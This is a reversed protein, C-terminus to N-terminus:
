PKSALLGRARALDSLKQKVLQFRKRLRAAEKKRAAPDDEDISQDPLPADPEQLLASYDSEIEIVPLELKARDVWAMRRDVRLVLLLQEEPTLMDRLKQLETKTETRLYTHTETRIKAVFASVQSTASLPSVRRANRGEARRVDISAARAIRYAWTRMSCRFAFTELSLWLRESFLSFADDAAAPDRHLALLLSLIESGYARLAETTAGEYDGSDHRERIRAEADNGM